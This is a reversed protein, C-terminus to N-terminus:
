KGQSLLDTLGAHAPIIGISDFVIEVHFPSGRM